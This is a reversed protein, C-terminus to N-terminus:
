NKLLWADKYLKKAERLLKTAEERNAHQYMSVRIKGNTEIIRAETYGKAKLDKLVNEAEKRPLLSRVIIYYMGTDHPQIEVPPPPQSSKKVATDPQKVGSGPKVTDPPPKPPEKGCVYVEGATDSYEGFWACAYNEVIAIGIANWTTGQWRGTNMLFSNFYGFSKWFNFVSDIVVPNNEWYVIEFAKGPYSTLERPKDWVSRIKTEDGPYCFPTWPGKDSWSHSNCDDTEPNNFFLDRAHVSAVYCLSRSLPVAPLDYQRRYENIMLYLKKENGSICFNEPVDGIQKIVPQAGANIMVLVLWALISLKGTSKKDM